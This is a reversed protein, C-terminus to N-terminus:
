AFEAHGLVPLCEHKRVQFGYVTPIANNITPLMM